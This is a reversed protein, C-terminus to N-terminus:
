RRRSRRFHSIKAWHSSASQLDCPLRPAVRCARSFNVLPPSLRPFALDQCLARAYITHMNVFDPMAPDGGEGGRPVLALEETSDVANEGIIRIPPRELEKSYFRLFLMIAMVRTDRSEAPMEKDAITSMVIAVDFIHDKLLAHLQESMAADGEFHNVKTRGDYVYEGKKTTSTLVDKGGNAGKFVEMLKKMDEEFAKNTRMNMFTISSNAPLDECILRLRTGFRRVKNWEPRWGCVLLRV